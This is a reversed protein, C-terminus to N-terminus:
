GPGAYLLANSSHWVVLQLDSLWSKSVQLTILDFIDKCLRVIQLVWCEEMSLRIRELPGTKASLM